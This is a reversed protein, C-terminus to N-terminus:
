NYLSEASWFGTVTVLQGGTGSPDAAYVIDYSADTEYAGAARLTPGPVIEGGRNQFSFRVGAASAHLDIRDPRGSFRAVVQDTAVAALTLYRSESRPFRGPVVGPGVDRVDARGAPYGPDLVPSKVRNAESGGPVARAARGWEARKDRNDWTM